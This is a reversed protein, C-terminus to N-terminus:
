LPSHSSSSSQIDQAHRAGHQRFDLVAGSIEAHTFCLEQTSGNGDLTNGAVLLCGGDALGAKFGAHHFRGIARAAKRQEVRSGLRNGRLVAQEGRNGILQVALAGIRKFSGDENCTGAHM